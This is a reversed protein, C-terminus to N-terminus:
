DLADIAEVIFFTKVFLLVSLMQLKPSINQFNLLSVQQSGAPWRSVLMLLGQRHMLISTWTLYRVITFRCSGSSSAM